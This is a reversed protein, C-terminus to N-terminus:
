IPVFLEGRELDVEWILLNFSADLAAAEAQSIKSQRKSLNSLPCCAPCLWIFCRILSKWSWKPKRCLDLSWMRFMNSINNSFHIFSPIFSIHTHPIKGFLHLPHKALYWFNLLLNLRNQCIIQPAQQPSSLKPSKPTCQAWWIMSISYQAGKGSSTYCRLTWDYWLVASHVNQNLAGLSFRGFAKWHLDTIVGQLVGRIAFMCICLYVFTCIYLCVFTGIYM